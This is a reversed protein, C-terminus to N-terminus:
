NVRLEVLKSTKFYPNTQVETVFILNHICYSVALSVLVQGDKIAGDYGFGYDVMGLVMNWFRFVTRNREMNISSSSFTAIQTTHIKKHNDSPEMVLLIEIEIM